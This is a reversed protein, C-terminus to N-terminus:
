RVEFVEIGQEDRLSQWLGLTESPEVLNSKLLQFQKGCVFSSGFQGVPLSLHLLPLCHRVRLRLTRPSFGIIRGGREGRRPTLFFGTPLRFRQVLNGAIQVASTHGDRVADTFAALIRVVTCRAKHIIDCIVDEIFVREQNGFISCVQQCARRWNRKRRRSFIPDVVM